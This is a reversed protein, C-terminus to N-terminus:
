PDTHTPTFKKHAPTPQHSGKIHRYPDTHTLTVKKHTPTPQRPDTHISACFSIVLKVEKIEDFM